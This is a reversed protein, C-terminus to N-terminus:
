FFLEVSTLLWLECFDSNWSLTPYKMLRELSFCKAYYLDCSLWQTYCHHRPNFFTCPVLLQLKGVFPHLNWSIIPVWLKLKAVFKQLTTLELNQTNPCFNELLRSVAWLKMPPLGGPRSTVPTHTYWTTDSLGELQVSDVEEKSIIEGIGVFLLLYLGNIVWYLIQFSDANILTLM